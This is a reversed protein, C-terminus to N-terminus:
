KLKHDSIYTTGADPGIGGGASEIANRVGQVLARGGEPTSVKQQREYSSNPWETESKPGKDTQLGLTLVRIAKHINGVFGVIGAPERVRIDAMLRNLDEHMALFSATSAEGAHKLLYDAIQTTSEGVKGAREGAAKKLEPDSSSGTEVNSQDPMYDGGKWYLVM